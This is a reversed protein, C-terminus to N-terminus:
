NKLRAKIQELAERIAALVDEDKEQAVDHTFLTLNYSGGCQGLAKIAAIRLNKEGENALGTLANIADEGGCQGLAKVADLVVSADKNKLFKLLKAGKGKGALKALKEWKDSM